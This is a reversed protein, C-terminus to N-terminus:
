ATLEPQAHRLADLVYDFRDWNPQLALVRGDNLHLRLSAFVYPFWLLKVHEVGSFLYTEVKGGGHDIVLGKGSVDLRRQSGFKEYLWGFPALIASMLSTLLGVEILAQSKFLAGMGVVAVGMLLTRGFFHGLWARYRRVEKPVEYLSRELNTRVRPEAM